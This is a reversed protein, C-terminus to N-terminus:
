TTHKYIINTGDESHREDLKLCIAKKVAKPIRHANEEAGYGLHNIHRNRAPNASSTLLAIASEESEATVVITGGYESAPFPVIDLFQIIYAYM